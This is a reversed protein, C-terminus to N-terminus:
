PAAREAQGLFRRRHANWAAVCAADPPELTRCRELEDRLADDQPAVPVPRAAQPKRRDEIAIAVATAALVGAALAVGAIRASRGM